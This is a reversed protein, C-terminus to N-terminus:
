SPLLLTTSHPLARINLKPSHKLFNQPPNAVVPADHEREAEAMVALVDVSDHAAARKIGVLKSETGV